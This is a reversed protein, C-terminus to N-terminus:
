NPGGELERYGGASLYAREYHVTCYYKDAITAFNTPSLTIRCVCCRFCWRHFAKDTAGVFEMQYVPKGCVACSNQGYQQTGAGFKRHKGPPSGGVRQSRPSVPPTRILMDKSVEGLDQRLLTILKRDDVGQFLVEGEYSLVGLKKATKLIGTLADFQDATESFLLGFEVKCRGGPATAGLRKIEGILKQVEGGVWDVAKQVRDQRAEEAPDEGKVVQRGQADRSAPLPLSRTVQAPPVPVTGDQSFSFPAERALPSKSPAPPVARRWPRTPRTEALDEELKIAQKRMSTFSPIKTKLNEESLRDDGSRIPSALKDETLGESQQSNLHSPLEGVGKSATKIHDRKVLSAVKEASPKEEESRLFESQDSKLLSTLEGVGKSARRIRNGKVLATMKEESLIDSDETWVPSAFRDEIPDQTQESKFLSTLKEAGKSATKIQDNKFLSTVKEESPTEKDESRLGESHESKFHSTLKEAGEASEKIHEPQLLSSGKEESSVDSYKSPYDPSGAMDGSPIESDEGMVPATLKEESPQSYESLMQKFENLSEEQRRVTEHSVDPNLLFAHPPLIIPDKEEREPSVSEEGGLQRSTDIKAAYNQEAARLALLRNKARAGRPPLNPSHRGPGSPQMREKISSLNSGTKLSRVQPKHGARPPSPPPTDSPLM